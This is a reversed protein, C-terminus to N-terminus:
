SEFTASLTQAAPSGPSHQWPDEIIQRITSMAAGLLPGRRGLRSLVLANSEWPRVTVRAALELRMGPLLWAGLDAYAGGLIVQAPDLINVAATLATGMARGAQDLAGRVQEDGAAARGALVQVLDGPGRSLGAARLVADQGAYQELCGRAGCACAPGDPYVPVHGLEGAFGRVGRLLRGGVVLAAGIGADASVHVFDGTGVGDWLEALAGLNAENEVRLPLLRLPAPLREKLMPGAPAQHWDLNPAHQVVGPSAVLGPVALVTGAARLGQEAGERIVLDAVAALDALVAGPDRGRNDADVRVWSRLAGSLDTLCGGLHGVGVELGLGALGTTSVTLLAGPRGVRGSPALGHETVLGSAALQGVLSGVAARTLGTGEALEARSVPGRAAVTGMVLALNQRRMGQQSAPGDQRGPDTGRRAHADPHVAM